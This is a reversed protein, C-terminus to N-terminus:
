AMVMHGNDLKVRFQTNAMAEVEEGDLPIAEEKAM